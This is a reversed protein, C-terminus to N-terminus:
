RIWSKELKKAPFSRRLIEIDEEDIELATARLNEALHNKDHTTTVVIVGNQSTLWSLAIQAPSVSYKKAMSLLVENNNTALEGLELPRFAQIFISNNQCLQLVGDEEVERVLLNYYVQNFLIEHNTTEIAQKMSNSNYNSVAMGRALGRDVIENLAKISEAIPVEPIPSHHVVIDLYDLNLRKLSEEVSRMMYDYASHEKKIASSIMLNKRDYGVVAQGVITEAWGDAYNQTTFIQTVGADIHLTIADIDAQDDNDLDREKQGGFQWTGLTYKQIDSKTLLKM